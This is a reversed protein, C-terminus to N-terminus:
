SKGALKPPFVVFNSMTFNVGFSVLISVLKAAAVPVFRSFILLTITATVVGLLGSLLFTFYDKRKLVRGSEVRFTFFSNMAYSGSAAILWATVNSAILPLELIKYAITFVTLDIITNGLGITAFSVLKPALPWSRWIRMIPNALKMDPTAKLEVASCLLHM